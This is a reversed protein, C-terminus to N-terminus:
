KGEKLEAMRAKAEETDYPKGCIDILPAAWKKPDRYVVAYRGNFKQDKMPTMKGGQLSQEVMAVFPFIVAEALRDSAERMLMKDYENLEGVALTRNRLFLSLSDLSMPDDNKELVVLRGEAEADIWAGLKQHLPGTTDHLLEKIEEPTLGTDEYAALHKVVTGFRTHCADVLCTLGDDFRQTLREM